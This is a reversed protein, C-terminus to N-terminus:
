QGFIEALKARTKPGIYGYGADSSSSVVGYKLQFKQVAKQTLSGFYNTENGISGVGSTAIATDPDSNLLQQLRKIDSNSQGKSLGKTFMASVGSPKTAVAVVSSGSGSLSLMVNDIVSQEANFAKLLGIISDIQGQTLSSASVATTASTTTTTTVTPTVTTQTSTTTVVGPASASGGGGGGGSSTTSTTTDCATSTPTVSVTVDSGGSLTL